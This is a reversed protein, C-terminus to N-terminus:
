GEKEGDLVCSVKIENFREACAGPLLLFLAVATSFRMMMTFETRDLPGFTLVSLPIIQQTQVTPSNKLRFNKEQSVKNPNREDESIYLVTGPVQFLYPVM